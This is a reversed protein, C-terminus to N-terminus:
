LKLNKEHYQIISKDWEPFVTRNVYIDNYDFRQLNDIKKAVKDVIANYEDLHRQKVTKKGAFGYIKKLRLDMVYQLTQLDSITIAWAQECKFNYNDLYFDSPNHASIMNAGEVSHIDNMTDIQAVSPLPTSDYLNNHIECPVNEIDKWTYLSQLFNGGAGPRWLLFLKCNITPTM